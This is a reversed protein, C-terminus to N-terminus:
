AKIRVLQVHAQKGMRAPTPNPKTKPYENHGPKANRREIATYPIVKWAYGAPAGMTGGAQGLVMTRLEKREETTRM